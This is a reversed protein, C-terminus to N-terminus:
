GEEALEIPGPELLWRMERAEKSDDEYWAGDVVAHQCHHEKVFRESVLSFRLYHPKCRHPYAKDLDLIALM